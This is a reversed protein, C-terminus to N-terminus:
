NSDLVERVKVALQQISFPKQIFNIREDVIGRDAVVNGSYGSMFLCKLQPCLATLKNALEPGNMEPMIVDSILLNLGDLNDSAIGVAEGPTAATLVAYGLRKLMLKVVDLFVSEDEVVLVTELGRATPTNISKKGTQETEVAHRPLYIKFTSGQGPESDIDIYGFNQKVIGYVTSLGLGSGQGLEKTTFFPEFIKEMTQKDIGNGNDSVALMVYEGPSCGKHEACYADDLVVNHTEITVKGAGAMADRANVCLNAMIQDVQSPDMKVSGLKAGPLWILDIDEGILRRLLKLMGEVTENLDLIKPMIAQKRAFALLQRTIEASRHGATLIAELHKRLAKPQTADKLALEAGGVIVGLMNNFDHAVGGALQGVAEMKQSQRLQEELKKRETIDRSVTLIGNMQFHDDRIASAALEVWITAGDKCYQELEMLVTRAPDARGSEELALQEALIKTAKQLSEPTLVQDLSQTMAEEVTYGRLKLVSPSTYIPQLNLDFVSITDATNETILRYREESEQLHRHTMLSTLADELRRGIERFLVEEESTWTKAYSCRHIGFQWPKGVKPYLVMSLMSKLNHRQAVHDPLPHDTGPGYQVPGDADILTQLREAMGADMSPELKHRYVSGACGPKSREMPVTWTDAAPDCPHLLYARECDLISLAIDLVDRMMQELSDAKQIARNVRDMSEFFKLNALREREVQKRETIDRVLGLDYSQGEYEFYSASIEMPIMRGDRTRFEREFTLTGKQKLDNWHDSWRQMSFGPNIDPLRMTLLEDRTYGLLRCAEENVYQFYAKEDVIAAVEHISNLAFSMMAVQQEAQKRDRRDRAEQLARQVASPLRALDQKLVYDTAGQTLAAIAAEEGMTGSLFIFPIDPRLQKTLRLASMGDYMPLRFDALIIDVGEKHLATEFEDRTQAKTLHVELGAEALDARVLAVDAPDDELHLINIPKKM